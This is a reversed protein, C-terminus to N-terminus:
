HLEYARIAKQATKLESVINQKFIYLCIFCFVSADQPTLQKKLTSLNTPM